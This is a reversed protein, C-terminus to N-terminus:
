GHKEQIAHRLDALVQDARAQLISKPIVHARAVVPPLAHQPTTTVRPEVLGASQALARLRSRVGPHAGLMRLMVARLPPVSLVARMGQVVVPRALQKGARLPSRVLTGTLRRAGRLPATAKWSNSG